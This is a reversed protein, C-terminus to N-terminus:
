NGENPASVTASPKFGRGGRPGGRMPGRFGRPNFAPAQGYPMYRVNGRGRNFNRPFRGRFGGRPFFNPQFSQQPRMKGLNLSTECNKVEKAIDDGFLQTTVPMNISCLNKYKQDLNPKLLYRRRVSLNFQAQGLLTLSDSILEKAEENTMLSQKLVQVLKLIPVIGSSLLSQIDQFLRDYTRTRKDLIKWIENNVTPPNLKECNEPVHYKESVSEIDCQSTCAVSILDALSQTIAPGKVKTKIKPLKWDSRDEVQDSDDFLSNKLKSTMNNSSDQAYKRAGISDNADSDTFENENEVEIRLNPANQPDFGEFDDYVEEVPMDFIGLKKRLVDIDNASLNDLDFLGVSTSKPTTKKTAKQKGKTQKSDNKSNNNVDTRTLSKHVRKVVSKLKRQQCQKPEASDAEFGSFEGESESSSFLVNATYELVENESQSM